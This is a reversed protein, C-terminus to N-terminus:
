VIITEINAAHFHIKIKFIPFIFTANTSVSSIVATTDSHHAHVSVSCLPFVFYIQKFIM